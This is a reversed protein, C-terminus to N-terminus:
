KFNSLFKNLKKSLQDSVNTIPLRVYNNCIGVHQLTEKIGAPNGEEFLMDIFDLLDFNKAKISLINGKLAEHVIESFEKPLTNGIVSIIGDGGSAIFPLVLDDDGSLVSFNEPADKMVKMSQAINGCADKIAVINEIEKALKLTTEPLINSATRGPVNYIIIPLSTKSAIFKFHEFIGKQSPKNYYPSVSLIGDIGKYNNYSAIKEAIEYTNNGGIGLVLPIRGNNIKIVFDLIDKKEESSLTASEGTTGQVVLYDVGNDILHNTLKELGKYDIKLEKNFPTVMAVGLGTFKKM